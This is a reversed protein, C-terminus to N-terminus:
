ATASRAGGALVGRRQERDLADRGLRDRAGGSTSGARRALHHAARRRHRDRDSDGRAGAPFAPDPQVRARVGAPRQRRQAHGHRLNDALIHACKVQM